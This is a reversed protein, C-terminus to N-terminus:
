RRQLAQTVFEAHGAVRAGHIAHHKEIPFEGKVIVIEDLHIAHATQGANVDCVWHEIRLNYVETQAKRAVPLNTTALQAPKISARHSMEQRVLNDRFLLVPEAQWEPNPSTCM